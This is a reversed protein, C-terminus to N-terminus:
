VMKSVQFGGDDDARFYIIQCLLKCTVISNFTPNSYVKDNLMSLQQKRGKAQELPGPTQKDASPPDNKKLEHLELVLPQPKSFLAM